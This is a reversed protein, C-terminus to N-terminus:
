GSFGIWRGSAGVISWLTVTVVAVLGSWLPKVARDDATVVKRNVTFTFVIAPVLFIMKVRFAPSYYCKVAESLFLLVGTGVMVVLGGVLWPQIDRALQAVPQRRLGLGLLRLNVIIVAGGILALALLHFSEIVPFLWQSARIAAGVGTNECWQFFPL